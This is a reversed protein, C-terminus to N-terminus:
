KCAKIKFGLKRAQVLFPEINGIGWQSSVAIEGDNLRVIDDVNLYHRKHGTRQFLAEAEARRSFCGCGADKVGRLGKPFKNQLEAYTIKPHDSVYKRIVELVLEGKGFRGQGDLSYKTFDRTKKGFVDRLIFVGNDANRLRRLVLAYVYPSKKQEQLRKQLEFEISTGVLVGVFERDAPFDSALENEDRWAKVQKNESLSKRNELYRILQDYAKVDLANLKLECIGIQGGGYEVIMDSRGQGKGLSVEADIVACDKLDGDDLNLLEPNGVLLGEMEFERKFPYDSLECGNMEVKRYLNM